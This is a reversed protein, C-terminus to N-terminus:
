IFKSHGHTDREWSVLLIVTTIYFGTFFMALKCTIM